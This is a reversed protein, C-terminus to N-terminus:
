FLSFKTASECLQFSASVFSIPSVFQTAIKLPMKSLAYLFPKLVKSSRGISKRNRPLSPM